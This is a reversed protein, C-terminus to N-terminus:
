GSTSTSASRPSRRRSEISGRPTILTWCGISRPHRGGLRRALEANSVGGERMALYLLVKATALASLVACPRGEAASLLPVDEWDAIRAALMTELADVARQLADGQDEGFTVAEPIDPFTVLLTGNDAPELPLPYALM